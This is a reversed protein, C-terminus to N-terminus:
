NKTKTGSIAPLSGYYETPRKAAKRQKNQWKLDKTIIIGLDQLQGTKLLQQNSMNYNCKTNNHGIHVVSCKALM